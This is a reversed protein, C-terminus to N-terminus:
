WLDPTALELSNGAPDRFYISRGKDPWDVVQEVAVGADELARKWDPLRAAPVAFALHGPGHAGHSPVRRGSRAAEEPNFILLVGEGCRFSLMLDSQYLLQLGLIGRYFEEAAKLDGAYLVSEYVAELKM